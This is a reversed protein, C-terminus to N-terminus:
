FKLLRTLFATRQAKQGSEFYHAYGDCDKLLQCSHTEGTLSRRAYGNGFYKKQDAKLKDM